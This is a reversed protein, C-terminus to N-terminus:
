SQGYTSTYLHYRLCPDNPFSLLLSRFVERSFLLDLLSVLSTRCSDCIHHNTRFKSVWLYTERLFLYVVTSRSLEQTDGLRLGCRSSSPLFKRESTYWLQSTPLIRGSFNDLLPPTLTSFYVTDSRPSSSPTRSQVYIIWRRGPTPVNRKCVYVM